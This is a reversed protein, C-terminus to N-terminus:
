YGKTEGGDIVLSAGTTFTSKASALFVIAAAIEEPKGLRKMPVDKKIYDRVVGPRDNIIEQWRGNNFYVNGPAVANIRINYQALESSLNKVLTLVSAKAASYGTPASSRQIGTISAVMVISGQKRKKMEPLFTDLLRVGGFLNIEMFGQWENVDLRNEALPKGSGLNAILIDIKKWKSILHKKVNGVAEPTTMDGAFYDVRSKYKKQFKKFLTSLIDKDRDNILVKAGEELFLRATEAGIGQGSAPVFVVKDKLKLDM